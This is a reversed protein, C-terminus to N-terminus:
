RKHYNDDVFKVLKNKAPGSLSFRPFVEKASVTVRPIHDSTYGVVIEKPSNFRGKVQVGTYGEGEDVVVDLRQKVEEEPSGYRTEFGANVLSTFVKHEALLGSLTPIVLTKRMEKQDGYINAAAVHAAHHLYEYRVKDKESRHKGQNLELIKEQLIRRSGLMATQTSTVLSENALTPDVVMARYTASIGIYHLFDISLTDIRERDNNCLERVRGDQPRAVYSEGVDFANDLDLALYKRAVVTGQELSESTEFVSGSVFDFLSSLQGAIILRQDIEDGVGVNAVDGGPAEIIGM